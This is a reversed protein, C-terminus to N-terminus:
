AKPGRLRITMESLIKKTLSPITSALTAFEAATFVLATLDSTAIVSASRPQHDLPSLEGFSEGSGLNAVPEGDIEVRVTGDLIVYCETSLEGQRVVTEGAALSVRKSSRAVTTLEKPTCSTFLALSRLEEVEPKSTRFMSLGKSATPVIGEAGNGYTPTEGPGLWLATDNTM